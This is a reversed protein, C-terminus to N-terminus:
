INRPHGPRGGRCWLFWGSNRSPRRPFHGGSSRRFRCPGTIGADNGILSISVSSGLDIKDYFETLHNPNLSAVVVGAFAGNHDLFRRTVQVSWQQSSRGVLPKSIFLKDESGDIHARYHERDSLDLPPTPKPGVNSARLIGTADIIAVQV